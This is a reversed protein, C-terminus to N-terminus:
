LVAFDHSRLIMSFLCIKMAENQWKMGIFKETCMLWEGTSAVKREQSAAKAELCASNGEPVFAYFRQPQDDECYIKAYKTLFDMRM